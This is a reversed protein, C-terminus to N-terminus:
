KKLDEIIELIGQGLDYYNTPVIKKSLDPIYRYPTIGYHDDKIKSLYKVKKKKNIIEFLMTFLEDISISNQGSILISKNLYNKNFCIKCTLSAADKVHIYERIERGTGSYVISSKNLINEVFKRMGNWEQAGSGYISGYRLFIYNFKYNKSFEKILIEACQKTARYISGLDNYVYLSSAYFFNKIKKERCLKLVTILNLINNKVTIEPNKKSFNIEAIDSFYFINSGPKLFKEYKKFNEIDTIIQRCNEIKKNQVKDIIVLNKKKILIDSIHKGLFGNGGFIVNNSM